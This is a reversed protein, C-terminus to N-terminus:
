SGGGPPGIWNRRKAELLMDVLFGQMTVVRNNFENSNKTVDLNIPVGGNAATPIEVVHEPNTGLGNQWANRFAKMIAVYTRFNNEFEKREPDSEDVDPPTIGLSRNQGSGGPPPSGM